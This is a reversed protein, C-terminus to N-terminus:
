LGLRSMQHQLSLEQQQMHTVQLMSNQGASQFAHQPQTGALMVDGLEGVGVQVQHLGSFRQGTGMSAGAQYDQPNPGNYSFVSSQQLPMVAQQSAQQTNAPFAAGFCSSDECGAVRLATQAALMVRPEYVACENDGGGGAGAAAAARQHAQSVALVASGAASSSLTSSTMGLSADAAAAASSGHATRAAIDRRRAILKFIQQNIQSDIAALASDEDVQLAALQPQWRHGYMLGASSCNSSCGGVQGAGLPADIVGAGAAPRLTDFMASGGAPRLSLSSQVLGEHMSVVSGAAAPAQWYQQQQQQQLLQPTGTSAHTAAAQMQGQQHWDLLYAPSTFSCNATAMGSGEADLTFSPLGNATAWNADFSSAATAGSFVSGCTDFVTFSDATGHHVAADFLPPMAAAAAAAPAALGTSAPNLWPVISDGQLQTWAASFAASSSGFGVDTAAPSGLLSLRVGRAAAAANPSVVCSAQESCSIHDAVSAAGASNLSHTSRSQQWQQQLQQQSTALQLGSGHQAQLKSMAVSDQQLAAANRMMM